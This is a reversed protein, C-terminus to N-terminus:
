QLLLRHTATADAPCYALRCRAGSLYGRWCGVVWNKVPRIGKRGGLWCRWLVSPMIDIIIWFNILHYMFKHVSTQMHWANLCRTLPLSRDRLIPMCKLVKCITTANNGAEKTPQISCDTPRTHRHRPILVQYTFLRECLYYVLECQCQEPWIRLDLDYIM